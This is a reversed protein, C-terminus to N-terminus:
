RVKLLWGLLGKRISNTKPPPPDSHSTICDACFLGYIPAPAHVSDIEKWYLIGRTLREQHFPTKCKVCLRLAHLHCLPKGDKTFPYSSGIVTLMGINEGCIDCRFPHVCGCRHCKDVKGPNEAGCQRCYLRAM